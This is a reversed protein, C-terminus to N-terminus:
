SVPSEVVSSGRSGELSEVTTDALSSLSIGEGRRGRHLAKDGASHDLSKSARTKVCVIRSLSLGADDSWLTSFDKIPDSNNSSSTM